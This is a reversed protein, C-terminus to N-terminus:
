HGLLFFTSSCLVCAQLMPIGLGGWLIRGDAYAAALRLLIPLISCPDSWGKFGFWCKPFAMAEPAISMDEAPESLGFEM